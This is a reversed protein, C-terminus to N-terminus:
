SSIDQRDRSRISSNRFPGRMNDLLRKIWRMMMGAPGGDGDGSLPLPAPFPFCARKRHPVWKRASPIDICLKQLSSKMRRALSLVSASRRESSSASHRSPNFLRIIVLEHMGRETSSLSGTAGALLSEWNAARTSKRLTCLFCITQTRRLAM